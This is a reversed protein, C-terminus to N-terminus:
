PSLDVIMADSPDVALSGGTNVIHVDFNAPTALTAPARVLTDWIPSASASVGLVEFHLNSQFLLAYSQREM